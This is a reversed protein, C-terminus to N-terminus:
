GVHDSKQAIEGARVPDASGLMQQWAEKEACIGTRFIRCKCLCLPSNLALCRLVEVLYVSRLWWELMNWPFFFVFKIWYSCYFSFFAKLFCLNVLLEVLFLFIYLFFFSKVDHFCHSCYLHHFFLIAWVESNKLNLSCCCNVSLFLGYTLSQSASHCLAEEPSGFCLSIVSPFM